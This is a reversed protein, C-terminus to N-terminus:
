LVGLAILILGLAVGLWFGLILRWLIHPGM